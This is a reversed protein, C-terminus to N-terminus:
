IWLILEPRFSRVVQSINEAKALAFVDYGKQRLMSSGLFLLDEDDDIILIKFMLLLNLSVATTFCSDFKVSVHIIM